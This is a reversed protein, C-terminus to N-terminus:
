CPLLPCCKVCDARRKVTGALSGILCEELCGEGTYGLSCHCQGNEPDCQGGNHCPCRQNVDLDLTDLHARSPACQVWGDRPPLKASEAARTVSVEARARAFSQPVTSQVSFKKVDLKVASSCDEDEGAQSVNASTKPKVGGHVCGLQLTG